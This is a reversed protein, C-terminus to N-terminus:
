MHNKQTEKFNGVFSPQEANSVNLADLVFIIRFIKANM